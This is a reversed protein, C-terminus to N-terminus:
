DFGACSQSLSLSHASIAHHQMKSSLLGGPEPCVLCCVLCSQKTWQPLTGKVARCRLEWCGSKVLCTVLGQAGRLLATQKQPVWPQDWLSGWEVLSNLGVLNEGEWVLVTAEFGWNLLSCFFHPVWMGNDVPSSAEPRKEVKIPPFKIMRSYFFSEWVGPNLSRGQFYM